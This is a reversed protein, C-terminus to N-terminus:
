AGGVAFSVSAAGTSSSTGNVYRATVTYSGPDPATGFELSATGRGSSDLTVTILGPFDQAPTTAILVTAGPWGQISVGVSGSSYEGGDAPALITPVFAFPRTSTAASRNGAADVQEVMLGASSPLLGPVRDVSWTGGAGVITSALVQGGRDRIVVTAGPEGWGSFGPPMSQDDIWGSTM